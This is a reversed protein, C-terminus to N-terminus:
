ICNSILSWNKNVGPSQIVFKGVAILGSDINRSIATLSTILGTSYLLIDNTNFVNLNSGNSAPTFNVTATGPGTGFNVYFQQTTQGNSNIQVGCNYTPLSTPTPTPTPTLTRTPTPTPTFLLPRTPTPTPTATPTPSPEIYVYNKLCINWATDNLPAIVTLYFYRTSREPINVIFDGSGPGDVPGYGLDILQQNYESSGRFGTDYLIGEEYGIVFRDPITRADFTASLTFEKNSLCDVRYISITEDEGEYCINVTPPPPTPSPTPTPKPTRTPTPTPQASILLFNTLYNTKEQDKLEFVELFKTTPSNYQAIQASNVLHFDIYDYATGPLINIKLNFINLAMNGNLVTISPYYTTGTLSQCVYTHSVPVDVPSGPDLSINNTYSDNAVVTKEINVIENDNFDYTIKLPAFYTTDISSPIVTLTCQGKFFGLDASLYTNKVPFGWPFFLGGDATEPYTLTTATWNM